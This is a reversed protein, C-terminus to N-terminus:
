FNISVKRYPEIILWSAEFSSKKFDIVIYLQQAGLAKASGM